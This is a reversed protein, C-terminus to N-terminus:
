CGERARKTQNQHKSTVRVIRTKPRILIDTKQYTPNKFQYYKRSKGQHLAAPTNSAQTLQMLLGEMNYGHNDALSATTGRPKRGTADEKYM